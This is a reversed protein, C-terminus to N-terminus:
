NWRLAVVKSAYKCYHKISINYDDGPIQLIDNWTSGTQIWVKSTVSIHM